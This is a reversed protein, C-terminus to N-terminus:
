LRNDKFNALLRTFIKKFTQSWFCSPCCETQLDKLWYWWPFDSNVLTQFGGYWNRLASDSWGFHVVWLKQIGLDWYGDKWWGGTVLAHTAVGCNHHPQPIPITTQGTSESIFSWCGEGESLGETPTTFTQKPELTGFSNIEMTRKLKVNVKTSSCAM